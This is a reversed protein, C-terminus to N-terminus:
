EAKAEQLKKNGREKVTPSGFMLFGEKRRQIKGNPPVIV